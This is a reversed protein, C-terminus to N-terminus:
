TLDGILVCIILEKPEIITEYIWMNLVSFHGQEPLVRYEARLNEKWIKRGQKGKYLLDNFIMHSPFHNYIITNNTAITNVYTALSMSLMGLCVCCPVPHIFIASHFHCDRVLRFPDYVLQDIYMVLSQVFSYYCRLLIKVECM